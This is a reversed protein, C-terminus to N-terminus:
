RKKKRENHVISGICDATVSTDVPKNTFKNWQGKSGTMKLTMRKTTQQAIREAPFYGNNSRSIFTIITKRPIEVTIAKLAAAKLPPV